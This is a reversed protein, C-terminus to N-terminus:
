AKADWLVTFVSDFSLTFVLFSASIGEYVSLMVTHLCSIITAELCYLVCMSRYM